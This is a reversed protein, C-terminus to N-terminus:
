KARARRLQNLVASMESRIARPIRHYYKVLEKIESKPMPDPDCAITGELGQYFYEVPVDLMQALDFLRSASIRNSGREYKQIQQFSVGIAYGVETQSRGLEKRRRRLQLGVNADVEDSTAPELTNLQRLPVGM